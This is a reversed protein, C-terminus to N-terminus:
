AQADNPPARPADSAVCRFCSAAMASLGFKLATLPPRVARVRLIEIRQPEIRPQAVADGIHTVVGHRGSLRLSKKRM